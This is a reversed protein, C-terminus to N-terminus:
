ALTAFGHGHVAPDFAPYNSNAKASLTHLVSTRCIECGSACLSTHAWIVALLGSMYGAAYSTGDVQRGAADVGPGENADRDGGPCIFVHPHQRGRQDATGRNSYRALKRPTGSWALVAVTSSFRSPYALQGTSGNGAAVVVIVGADRLERLREEFVGTRASVPQRGCKECSVRGFGLSLSLNVIPPIPGLCLAQLVEWETPKRTSDAVKFVEFSGDSQTCSDIIETVLSGHGHDDHVDNGGDLINVSRAVRPSGGYGSDIVRVRPPPHSAALVNQPTLGLEILYRDHDASLAGRGGAADFGLYHNPQAIVGPATEAHGAEAALTLRLRTLSVAAIQEEGEPVSLLSYAYGGEPRPRRQDESAEFRGDADPREEFEALRADLQENIAVAELGPLGQERGYAILDLGIKDDRALGLIVDGPRQPDCAHAPPTDATM